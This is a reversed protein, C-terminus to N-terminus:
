PRRGGVREHEDAVARLCLAVFWLTVAICLLGAAPPLYYM